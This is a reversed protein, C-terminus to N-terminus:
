EFQGTGSDLWAKLHNVLAEVKERELHMRTAIQVENPIPYPVWGCKQNTRIGVKEADKWMVAAKVDDIGLWIASIGPQEYKALSSAQISCKEGYSDEFEVLPFGRASRTQKALWQRASGIWRIELNGIRM